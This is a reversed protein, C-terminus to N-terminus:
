EPESRMQSQMFNSCALSRGIPRTSTTFLLGSVRMLRLKRVAFEQNRQHKDLDISYFHLKGM